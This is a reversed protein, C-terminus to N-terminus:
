KLCKVSASPSTVDSTYKALQLRNDTPIAQKPAARTSDSTVRASCSSNQDWSDDMSLKSKADFSTLPTSRYMNDPYGIFSVFTCDLNTKDFVAFCFDSGLSSCIEGTLM